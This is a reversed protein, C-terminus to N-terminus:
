GELPAGQTAALREVEDAVGRAFYEVFGLIQEDGWGKDELGAELVRMALRLTEGALPPPLASIELAIIGVLRPDPPVFDFIMPPSRADIPRSSPRPPPYTPGAYDAATLKVPRGLSPKKGLQLSLEGFERDTGVLMAKVQALQQRTDVAAIDTLATFELQKIRERLAVRHTRLANYRRCVHDLYSSV